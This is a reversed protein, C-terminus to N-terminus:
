NLKIRLPFQFSFVGTDLKMMEVKSLFINWGFMFKVGYLGLGIEPRFTVVHNGKGDFYYIANLTMAGLSSGGYGGISIKPGAIWDDAIKIETSISKVGGLPHHGMKIDTVKMYGAEFFHERHFNYGLFVSTFTIKKLTSDSRQALLPLSGSLFFILFLKRM